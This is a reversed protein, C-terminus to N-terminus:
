RLIGIPRGLILMLALSRHLSGGRDRAYMEILFKEESEPYRVFSSGTQVVQIFLAFNSVRRRLDCRHAIYHRNDRKHRSQGGYEPPHLAPVLRSSLGERDSAM